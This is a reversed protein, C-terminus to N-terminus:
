IHYEGPEGGDATDAVAAPQTLFHSVLWGIQDAELLFADHGYDTKVESSIVNLGNHRLARIIDRSQSTPFLWDSSFSVVLFDADTRSFAAELSGHARTLDFYDMAKTIYLYSNADFRSVFSDGKYKLYSEVQFDTAFDYSYEARDQLRRAFKQDMSQESLYTIHGVMRALALGRHPTTLGYYNGGLWDPDSMIAQRGVENLAIAQASLSATTAIPIARAVYEPFRAVWELVQMGGMSGGSVAYLRRIGLFDVLRKQAEVMDGVTIVPFRTAYPEGTTPDSSGPGTSGKCGGIINSCIVFFRDTDFPRGPGIMIDWWGPKDDLRSNYGAAHADGSLAHLVLIANDKAENLKGYTEYALTVPGLTRGCELELPDPPYGFTFSKPDALGVSGEGFTAAAAATGSLTM